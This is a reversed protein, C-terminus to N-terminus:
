PGGQLEYTVTQSGEVVWVVTNTLHTNKDAYIHGGGPTTGRQVEGAPVPTSPRSRLYSRGDISIRPPAASPSLRWEWGQSHVQVLRFMVVAACVLLVVTVARRTSVSVVAGGGDRLTSAGGELGVVAVHSSLTADAPSVSTSAGAIRM